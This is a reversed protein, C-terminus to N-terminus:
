QARNLIRDRPPPALPSNAKLYAFLAEDDYPGVVPDRGGKFATFGDGGLALYTNLTVRYSAAPDVPKGALMMSAADVRGGAPQKPDFAYSFGNSIQLIRPRAPDLWQQELAAKIEAGTLTVTMLQNRFPQSAFVDAYTVAGDDRRALDTRIGGPNTMAIVAGGKATAALQADAIVDGLASEGAGNPVRSLPQAISGAPRNAIPAAVKEYADILATQAPDKPLTTDVVINTATASVVDRTTRDLKVDIATVLTGFKDASTVLRKDITCVYAQHTHGSIIIDVASDLDKVIDVIPGSLGPCENMGGSPWGGEHILVVIAQVGKAKLEPILANISEAENRFDLGAASAPSIIGATAKLTLGIFAVPIDEFTRIEYPPFVTKDTGALFTSAALYHFKAGTFRQPGRCGETPHCGGNQMRLLEDKGEDFEHNGVASLALGMESMAEITPEDHFMASLFPSAGILDGASVFITNPQGDSLLKVLSAMHEAGGAPVMSTKAPDAPDAVRIGAPPPKLNGHFDNIALIRLSVPEDEAHVPLAALGAATLAAVLCAALVRSLRSM